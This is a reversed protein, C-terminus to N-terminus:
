SASKRKQHCKDRHESGGLLLNGKKIASIESNLVMLICIEKKSPVLGAAAGNGKSFFGSGFGSATM